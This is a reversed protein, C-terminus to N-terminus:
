VENFDIATKSSTLEELGTVELHGLVPLNAIHLFSPQVTLEKSNAGNRHLPLVLTLEPKWAMNGFHLPNPVGQSAQDFQGFTVFIKGIMRVDLTSVVKFSFDPGATRTDGDVILYRALVPDTAIIVTPANSNGGALADAAPKYGSDRYMRYVLNRILSILAGSIDADKDASRVSNTLTNVNVEQKEYFPTILFRAVGLVEPSDDVGDGASVTQALLEAVRLLETVADNSTRIRTATILAALDSADTNDGQGLPRPITIPSHLPVAYTQNYITVDLLQGRQRRNSNTRRAELEYGLLKSDEFLAVIASVAADTPAYKVGDQDTVSVVSVAGALVSTDGLELNVSGSVTVDLRVTYEGAILAALLTPAAGAVTKTDKDIKLSKTTFNLQMERYNGQPAYNFTARPMDSTRFKIVEKDTGDTLQLYLSDLRIAPDIADTSDQQGTALLAASQSIALLSLKAGFALASTTISEGDVLVTRPTLDASPVFKSVSETRHVPVIKTQDNRLISPDRVAHVINRRNFADLAGSINRRVENYVQVLHISVTYGVQDPTVVVTPFLTEGFEDQRAAQYNYTVSYVAAQRNEKEDYSELAAGMRGVGARTPVFRHSDSSVQEMAPKATIFGHVNGAVLGAVQGALRQQSNADALGISKDAAISELAVELSRMSAQLQEQVVPTMSEMAILAGAASSDVFGGSQSRNIHSQLTAVLAGTASAKSQKQFLNM